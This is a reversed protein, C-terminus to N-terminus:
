SIRGSPFGSPDPLDPIVLEAMSRKKFFARRIPRRAYAGPHLTSRGLFHKGGYLDIYMLSRKWTSIWHHVTGYEVYMWHDTGVYVRGGSKTERARISRRMAGTLVPTYRRAEAAIQKCAEYSAKKVKHDVREMGPEYMIVLAM